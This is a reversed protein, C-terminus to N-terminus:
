CHVYKESSRFWKTEKDMDDNRRRRWSRKYRRESIVEEESPVVDEFILDVEETRGDSCILESMEVDAEKALGGHIIREEEEKERREGEIKKKCNGERGEMYRGVADRKRGDEKYV